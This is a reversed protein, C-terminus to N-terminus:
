PTPAALALHEGGFGAPRVMLRVKEDNAPDPDNTPRTGRNGDLGVDWMAARLLMIRPM